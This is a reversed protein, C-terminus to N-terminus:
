KRATGAKKDIEVKHINVLPLIREVDTENIQGPLEALCNATGCAVALRLGAEVGLKRREAVAFGAVAADGCGVTSIVKVSPSSAFIAEGSEMGIWAMGRSGLSVAVGKAGLEQLYRMASITSMDNDIRLGSAAGAEDRNPKILEPGSGIGTILADGSTDLTVTGHLDHAASILRSYFVIPVNPPLSGSLVAHFDARAAAFYEGCVEYMKEIETSTINGGPELVETIGGSGDIIEDNIRTKAETRVAVVKIGMEELQRSVGDGTDGGLFGIWIVSEGLARAAMAVHAAKGGAFSVASDARNVEGVRLDTLRIRRDIAPNASVCIIM